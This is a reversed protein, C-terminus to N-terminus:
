NELYIWLMVKLTNEREGEGQMDRDISVDKDM